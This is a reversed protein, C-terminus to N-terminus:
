GDIECICMEKKKNIPLPQKGAKPRWFYIAQFVYNSTIVGVLSESSGTVVWINTVQFRLSLIIM